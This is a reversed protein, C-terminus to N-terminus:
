KFAYEKLSYENLYKEAATTFESFVPVVKQKKADGGLYINLSQKAEGLIKLVNNITMDYGLRQMELQLLCTLTFALICYFAHVKITTDTFHRVPRFSLNKTNKMQKFTEEVHYQSRYTSVIKENSWNNRNTFLITKGLYKNVVYNYKDKDLSYNLNLNNDNETISFTFVKKMHDASLIKNINKLISDATRKRGKKLKGEQRLKLSNQILLFEKECKLINDKLGVLQTQRLKPNDTIIVTFTKNYIDKQSRFASTGGFSVGNLDKYQNHEIELLEPCQNLRLGGVFYFKSLSSNELMEIANNSNNGKDFVLTIDDPEDSIKSLRLKLKEIINVFQTSDCRNGPYTEHFLPINYEPSVMLSLGIIKLDTRKEKSHGRQPILAPNLTNIYTFFNTNDFMLCSTSIKYQDVIRKTLEDEIAILTDQDLEVMHNWFSQSSLTKENAEPFSNSLVTKSFWDYFSNKSCPQVVRNIAALVMYSGVSLGQARKSALKDIIDAVGLRECLNLLAAETGFQYIRCFDPTDDDTSKNNAKFVAEINDATGLSMLIEQKPRGNIRATRALYYYTTNGKKRKTLHPM